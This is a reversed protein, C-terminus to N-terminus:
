KNLLQFAIQKMDALHDQTAKLQGASGTGESPRLGCDWLADMLQQAEHNNLRVAPEIRDGEKIERMTVEGISALQLNFNYSLIALEIDASWASRFARVKVETGHEM